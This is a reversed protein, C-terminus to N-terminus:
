NLTRGAPWSYRTAVSKGTKDLNLSKLVYYAEHASKLQLFHRCQENSISDSILMFWDKIAQEPQNAVVLKCKICYHTKHNRYILTQNCLSCLQGKKLLNPDIKFYNCLPYVRYSTQNAQILKAIMQVDQVNYIPPMQNIERLIIALRKIYTIPSNSPAEKVIAQNNALVVIGSINVEIGRQALWISLNDKAINLQTIPCEMITEEGDIERLLHHPNSKFFLKGKINKVELIFVTQRTILLTDIQFSYNTSLTLEVNTLIIPLEPAYIKQLYHDVKSEGSFGAELQYLRKPLNISEIYPYNSPLRAILRPLATLLTPKSRVINISLGGNM